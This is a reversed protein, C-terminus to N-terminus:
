RFKNSGETEGELLSDGSKACQSENPEMQTASSHCIFKLFAERQLEALFRCLSVNEQPVEHKLAVSSHHSYSRQLQLVQLKKNTNDVVEWTVLESSLIGFRSFM